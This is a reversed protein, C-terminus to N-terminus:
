MAAVQEYRTNFADAVGAIEQLIEPFVRKIEPESKSAYALEDKDSIPLKFGKRVRQKGYRYGMEYYTGRVTPHRM